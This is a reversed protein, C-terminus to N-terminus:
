SEIRRATEPYSEKSTRSVNEALHHQIEGIMSRAEALDIVHDKFESAHLWPNRTHDPDSDYRPFLHWHIHPEANGYCSHNMKWPRFTRVIASTATMVEQFLATQVDPLLEHLERVHSKLLILSYGRHYQHEGLVFISNEFEYIFHPNNGKRWIEIRECVYCSKQLESM